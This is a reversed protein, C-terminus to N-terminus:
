PVALTFTVSEATDDGIRLAAGIRRGLRRAFYAHVNHAALAAPDIDETLAQRVEPKLEARTGDATIRASLRGEDPPTDVRVTGGRPLAELALLICNLLLRAPEKAWDQGTEAADPWILTAKSDAFIGAAVDHAQGAGIRDGASGGAGFALRFFDLRRSALRASADILDLVDGDMNGDFERVLEVGNNIAGVPSILDHCLKSCLLELVRLDVRGSVTGGDRGRM